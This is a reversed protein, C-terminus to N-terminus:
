TDEGCNSKLATLGGLLVEADRARIREGLWEVTPEWVTGKSALSLEAWRESIAGWDPNSADLAQLAESAHMRISTGM